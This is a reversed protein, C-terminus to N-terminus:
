THGPWQYCLARCLWRRVCASPVASYCSCFWNVKISVKIKVVIFRGEKSFTNSSAINNGTDNTDHPCSADAEISMLSLKPSPIGSSQVCSCTTPLRSQTSSVCLSKGSPVRSPSPARMANRLVVPCVCPQRVLSTVGTSSRERFLIVLGIRMMVWACSFIVPSKSVSVM